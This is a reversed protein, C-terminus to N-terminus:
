ICKYKILIIKNQLYPSLFHQPAILNLKFVQKHIVTKNTAARGMM